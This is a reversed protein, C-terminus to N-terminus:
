SRLEFIAANLKLAVVVLPLDPLALSGFVFRAEVFAMEVDKLADPEETGRVFIEEETLCAEFEFKWEALGCPEWACCWEFAVAALSDIVVRWLWLKM